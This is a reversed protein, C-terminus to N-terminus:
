KDSNFIAKVQNFAYPIVGIGFSLLVNALKSYDPEDDCALKAYFFFSIMTMAATLAVFGSLLAILRSTSSDDKNSEANKEKLARGISFDKNSKLVASFVLLFIFFLLIPSFVLLWELGGLSGNCNASFAFQSILSFGFISKIRKM